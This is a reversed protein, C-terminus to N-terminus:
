PTVGSYEILAKLFGQRRHKSLPLRDNQLYVDTMSMTVVYAMNVLFANHIRYFAADGLKAEIAHLPEACAFDERETHVLVHKKYTEVYIISRVDIFRQEKGVRFAVLSAKSIRIQHLMRMITRHFSPYNIPKILFGAANVEYGELALSGLRTLFCIPVVDDYQRVRRATSLGDIGPMEIDLLVMDVGATLGELLQEGNTYVALQYATGSAGLAEKLFNSVSEADVPNDEALLIRLM